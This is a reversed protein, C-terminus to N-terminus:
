PLLKTRNMMLFRIIIGGVGLQRAGVEVFIAEKVKNLLRLDGEVYDIVPDILNSERHTKEQKANSLELEKKVALRLLIVLSISLIALALNVPSAFQKLVPKNPFYRSLISLIVPLAYSGM